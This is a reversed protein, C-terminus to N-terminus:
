EESSVPLFAAFDMPVDTILEFEIEKRDKTYYIGYYEVKDEANWELMGAFSGAIRGNSTHEFVNLMFGKSDEGMSEIYDSYLVIDADPKSDFSYVGIKYGGGEPFPLDLIMTIQKDGLIGSLKCKLAEQANVALVASCFVAIILVLKKM